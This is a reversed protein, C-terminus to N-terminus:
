TSNSNGKKYKKAFVFPGSKKFQGELIEPQDTTLSTLMTKYCACSM